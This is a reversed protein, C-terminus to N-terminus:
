HLENGVLVLYKHNFQKLNRAHKLYIFCNDSYVIQSKFFPWLDGSKEQYFNLCEAIQNLVNVKGYNHHCSFFHEPLAKMKYKSSKNNHISPPKSGALHHSNKYSYSHLSSNNDRLLPLVAASLTPLCLLHTLVLAVQADLFARSTGWCFLNKSCYHSSELLRHFFLFVSSFCVSHEEM